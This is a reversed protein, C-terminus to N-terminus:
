DMDPLPRGSIAEYGARFGRAGPLDGNNVFSIAFTNAVDVRPDALTASSWDIVAPRGDATMLINEPHYDGHILCPPWMVVQAERRRLEALLPAFPAAMGATTLIQDMADLSFTSPLEPAVAQAPIAHLQVMLSVFVPGMEQIRGQFHRWLVQGEIWEMILFPAGLLSTDTEFAIVAPVPYGLAHLRRLVLAETSARGGFDGLTYVRLVLPRGDAEFRYVDTEMGGHLRDLGTIAAGNLYQQLTTQLDL